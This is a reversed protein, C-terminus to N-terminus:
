LKHGKFGQNGMALEEGNPGSLYRVEKLIQVFGKSVGCKTREAHLNIKKKLDM